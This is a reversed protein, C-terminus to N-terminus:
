GNAPVRFMRLLIALSSYYGLLGAMEVVRPRGFRAVAREFLPTPVDNQAFFTQAFEYILESEPDDLPPQVRDRLAAIVAEPIGAKRAEGAHVAFEYEAQWHAAVILVMLESHRPAFGTRYRCFAGLAQTLSALEPSELLIHFPAPVAGARPAAIADFVARQEAGLDERVHTTYRQPENM